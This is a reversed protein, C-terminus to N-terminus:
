LLGLRAAALGLQFRTQAGFKTCLEQIHDRLTSRSIGLRAAIEEDKIGEAMGHLLARERHPLEGQFQRGILLLAGGCNAFGPALAGDTVYVPFHGVWIMVERALVETLTGRLLYARAGAVMVELFAGIDSSDALAVVASTPSANRLETVLQPDIRGSPGAGLVTVDPRLRHVLASLDTSGEGVLILRPDTILLSRLAARMMENPEALLVRVPPQGV